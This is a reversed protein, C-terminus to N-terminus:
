YDPMEEKIKIDAIFETDPIQKGNSPSGPEIDLLTNEFDSMRIYESNLDDNIGSSDTFEDRSLVPTTNKHVTSVHKLYATRIPFVMGCFNCEFMDQVDFTVNDRQHNDNILMDDIDVEKEEQKIKFLNENVTVKMEMRKPPRGKRKSKTTSSSDIETPAPRVIQSEKERRQKTSSIPRDFVGNQIHRKHHSNLGSKHRFPRSCFMCKYPFEGTHILMHDNLHAQALFKRSCISCSFRKEKGSRFSRGHTTLLQGDEAPKGNSTTPPPYNGEQHKIEMAAHHVTLAKKLNEKGTNLEEEKLLQKLTEERLMTPAIQYHRPKPGRRNKDDYLQIRELLVENALEDLPFDIWNGGPHDSVFIRSEVNGSATDLVYAFETKKDDAGDIISGDTVRIMFILSGDMSRVKKCQFISKRGITINSNESANSIVTSKPTAGTKVVDIVRPPNNALFDPLIAIPQQNNPQSTGGSQAQILVSSLSTELSNPFRDPSLLAPSIPIAGTQPFAGIPGPYPAIPVFRTTPIPAVIKIPTSVGVVQSATTSQSAAAAMISARVEKAVEKRDTQRNPIPGQFVHYKHHLKIHRNWGSRQAFRKSCFECEYPM